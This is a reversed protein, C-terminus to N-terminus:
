VNERRVSRVINGEDTDVVYEGESVNPRLLVQSTISLGKTASTADVESTGIDRNPHFSARPIFLSRYTQYGVYILLLIILLYVWWNNPLPGRPDSDDPLVPGVNIGPSGTTSPSPTPGGPQTPSTQPGPTPTPANTGDTPTPTPTPAPIISTVRIMRTNSTVSAVLRGNIWRGAEVTARYDGAVAYTHASTADSQWATTSGDGFSFRYRVNPRPLELRASFTVAGGSQISTPNALLQVNGLSRDGEVYPTPTPTPPPLTRDRVVIAQRPSGGVQRIGLGNGLGLDVYSLYNGRAAYMHSTAASDQWDTQAGDGFSFRYKIGPYSSALQANFNVREGATVQNPRAILTVRPVVRRPDDGGQIEPSVVSAYVKYHGTARYRHTLYPQRARVITGDGFDVTVNLKPNTVLNAPSLTFRVLEGVRVPTKEVVVIVLGRRGGATQISVTNPDQPPPSLLPNPAVPSTIAFTSAVVLTSLLAFTVLILLRSKAFMTADSGPGRTNVLSLNFEAVLPLSLSFEGSIL